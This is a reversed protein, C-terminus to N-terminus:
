ALPFIVKSTMYIQVSCKGREKGKGVHTMDLESMGAKEVGEKSKGGKQRKSAM